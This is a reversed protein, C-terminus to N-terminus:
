SFACSHREKYWWSQLIQSDDKFHTDEPIIFSDFRVKYRQFAPSLMPQFKMLYELGLNVKEGAFAHRNFVLKMEGLNMSILSQFSLDHSRYDPTYVKVKPDFM